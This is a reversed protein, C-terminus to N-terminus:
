PKSSRNKRRSTASLRKLKKLKKTRALSAAQTKAPRRNEDSGVLHLITSLTRKFHPDEVNKPDVASWTTEIEKRLSAEFLLRNMTSLAPGLIEDHHQDMLRVVRAHIVPQEDEATLWDYCLEKARHLRASHLVQPLGEDLDIQEDRSAFDLPTSACTAEMLQLARLNMLCLLLSFIKHEVASDDRLLKGMSWEGADMAEVLRLLAWEDCCFEELLDTRSLMSSCIDAQVAMSKEFDVQRSLFEIKEDSTLASTFAEVHDPTLGQMKQQAHVKLWESVRSCDRILAAKDSKYAVHALEHLVVFHEQLSTYIAHTIEGGQQRKHDMRHRSHRYVNAAHIAEEYFGYRSLIHSAVKHFYIFKTERSAGHLLLRNMMNIAQGFYQDHVILSKGNVTIAESRMMDTYIISVPAEIGFRAAQRAVFKSMAAYVIESMGAEIPSGVFAKLSFRTSAIYARVLAPLEGENSAMM